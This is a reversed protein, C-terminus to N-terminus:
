CPMLLIYTSVTAIDTSTISELPYVFTSVKIKVSPCQTFLRRRLYTYLYLKSASVDVYILEWTSKLLLYTSTPQFVDVEYIVQISVPRHLNSMRRCWVEFADDDTSTSM